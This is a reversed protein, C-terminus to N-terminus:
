QWNHYAERTLFYRVTIPERSLFIYNEPKLDRYIIKREHLFALGSQVSAAYFRSSEEDFKGQQCNCVFAPQTPPSRIFPEEM